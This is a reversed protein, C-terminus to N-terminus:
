HISRLPTASRVQHLLFLWFNLEELHSVIELSWAVSFCITSPLVLSQYKAPWLAYPKPIVGVGLSTLDMYGENYKIFAMTYSYFALLPVCLLYSYTM